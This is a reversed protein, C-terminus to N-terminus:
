TKTVVHDLYVANTTATCLTAYVDGTLLATFTIAIKFATTSGGWV